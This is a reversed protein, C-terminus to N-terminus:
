PLYPLFQEENLEKLILLVSFVQSNRSESLDSKCGTDLKPKFFFHISLLLIWWTFSWNNLFMSQTSYLIAAAHTLYNDIHQDDTIGKNCQSLITIREKYQKPIWYTIGFITTSTYKLRFPNCYMLFTENPFVAGRQKIHVIQLSFSCNYM